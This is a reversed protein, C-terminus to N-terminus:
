AGETTASVLDALIERHAAPCGIENRGLTVDTHGAALGRGSRELVPADENSVFGQIRPRYDECFAAVEGTLPKRSLMTHRITSSGPTPGPFLQLM